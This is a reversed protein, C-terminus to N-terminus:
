TTTEGFHLLQTEILASPADADILNDLSIAAQGVCGDVTFGYRRGLYLFLAADPVSVRLRDWCWNGVWTNWGSHGFVHRFARFRNPELATLRPARGGTLELDIRDGKREIQFAEIRGAFNGNDADNCAVHLWVNRGAIPPRWSRQHHRSM